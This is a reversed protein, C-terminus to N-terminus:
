YYHYNIYRYLVTTRSIRKCKGGNEQQIEVATCQMSIDCHGNNLDRTVPMRIFINPSEHKQTLHISVKTRLMAMKLLEFMAVYVVYGQESGVRYGFQLKTEISPPPFNLAM